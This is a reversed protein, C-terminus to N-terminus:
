HKLAERGGNEIAEALDCMADIVRRLYDIDSEAGMFLGHSSQLRLEQSRLDISIPRNGRVIGPLKEALDTAALARDVFEPKLYFVFQRDLQDYGSQPLMERELQKSFARNANPKTAFHMKYRTPVDIPLTLTMAYSTPPGQRKGLAIRRLTTLALARGRYIGTIRAAKNDNDRKKGYPEFSLHLQGALRRWAPEHLRHGIFLPWVFGLFIASLVMFIPGVMSNASFPQPIYGCFFLLLVFIILPYLYRLMVLARSRRV